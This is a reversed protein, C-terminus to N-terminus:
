EGPGLAMDYLRGSHLTKFDDPAAEQLTTKKKAEFDQIDRSVLRLANIWDMSNNIKRINLNERVKSDFAPGVRGDTLLLTAKSIGVVGALGGRARDGFSLDKFIEWLKHLSELIEDYQEKAYKYERTSKIRLRNDALINFDNLIKLPEKTQNLITLPGVANEILDELFPPEHQGDDQTRRMINPRCADWKRLVVGLKNARNTPPTDLWEKWDTVYTRNFRNIANQFEKITLNAIGHM